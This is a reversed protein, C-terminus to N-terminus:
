TTLINKEKHKDLYYNLQSFFYIYLYFLFYFLIWSVLSWEMGNRMKQRSWKRDEDPIMQPEPDNATWNPSWNRDRPWKRDPIMQPATCNVSLKYSSILGKTQIICHTFIELSLNQFANQCSSSKVITKLLTQPLRPIWIEKWQTFPAWIIWRSKRRFM